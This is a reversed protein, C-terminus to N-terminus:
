PTSRYEDILTELDSYNVDPKMKNTSKLWKVIDSKSNKKPNQIQLLLNHQIKDAKKQLTTQIINAHLWTKINNLTGEDAGERFGESKVMKSHWFWRCFLHHIVAFLIAHTIAVIYKSGKPPLKVLIGPTLVFFLLISFLIMHMRICKRPCFLNYKSTDINELNRKGVNRQVNKRNKEAHNEAM